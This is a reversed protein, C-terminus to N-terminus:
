QSKHSVFWSPSIAFDLLMQLAQANRLGTKPSGWYWRFSYDAMYQKMPTVIEERAQPPFLVAYVYRSSSSFTASVGVGTRQQWKCVGRALSHHFVWFFTSPAIQGALVFSSALGWGDLSPSPRNAMRDGWWSFCRGWEPEQSKLIKNRIKSGGQIM